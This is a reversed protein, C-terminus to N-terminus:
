LKKIDVKIYISEWIPNTIGSLSFNQINDSFSNQLIGWLSYRLHKETYMKINTYAFNRSNNDLKYKLSKM